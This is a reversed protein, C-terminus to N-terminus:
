LLMGLFARWPTIVRPLCPIPLQLLRTARLPTNEPAYLVEIAFLCHEMDFYLGEWGHMRLSLCKSLNYIYFERQIFSMRLNVLQLYCVEGTNVM